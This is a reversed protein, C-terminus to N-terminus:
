FRCWLAAPVSMAAFLRLTCNNTGARPLPSQEPGLGAGMLPPVRQRKMRALLAQKRLGWLPQAISGQRAKHWFWLILLQIDRTPATM